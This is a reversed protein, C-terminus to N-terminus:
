LIHLESAKKCCPTCIGLVISAGAAAQVGALTSGGPQLGSAAECAGGGGGARERFDRYVNGERFLFSCM